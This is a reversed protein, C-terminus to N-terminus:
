RIPLGFECCMRMGTLKPAFECRIPLGFSNLAFKDFEFKIRQLDADRIHSRMRSSMCFSTLLNEKLHFGNKSWPYWLLDRVHLM